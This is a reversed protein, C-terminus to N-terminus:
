FLRKLRQWSLTAADFDRSFSNLGSGLPPLVSSLSGNLREFLFGDFRITELNHNVIKYTYVYQSSTIPRINQISALVSAYNKRTVNVDCSAVISPLLLQSIAGGVNVFWDVVFSYPVLEWATKLYSALSTGSLRSTIGDNYRVYAIMRVSGYYRQDQVADCNCFSNAGNGSQVIRNYYYYPVTVQIKIPHDKPLETLFAKMADQFSYITPMIGYRYTLWINSVKSLLDNGSAEWIDRVRRIRNRSPIVKLHRLAESYDRSVLAKGFGLFSSGLSRYLRIAEGLEAFDTLMDWYPFQNLVKMNLAFQARSQADTVLSGLGVTWVSGMIPPTNGIMGRWTDIRVGDKWVYGDGGACSAGKLTNHERWYATTTKFNGRKRNAAFYEQDLRQALGSYYPYREYGPIPRNRNADQFIIISMIYEGVTYISPTQKLSGGVTLGAVHHACFVFDEFLELLGM